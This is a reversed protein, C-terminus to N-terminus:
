PAPYFGRSLMVDNIDVHAAQQAAKKGDVREPLHLGDLWEQKLQQGRRMVPLEARAAATACLVKWREQLSPPIILADTDYMAALRKRYLVSYSDFPKIELVPDGDPTRTMKHRAVNFWWPHEWLRPGRVRQRSRGGAKVQHIRALYEEGAPGVKECVLVEHCLRQFQLDIFKVDQGSLWLDTQVHRHITMAAFVIPDLQMTSRSSFTAGVEDGFFAAGRFAPTGADEFALWPQAGDLWYDAYVRRGQKILKRAISAAVMGKGEGPRGTILYIM